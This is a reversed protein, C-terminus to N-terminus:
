REGECGTKRETNKRVSMDRKRERKREREREWRQRERGRGRGRGDRDRDRDRKRKRWDSNREGVGTEREMKERDWGQRRGRKRRSM